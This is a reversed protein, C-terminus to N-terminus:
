REFVLLSFVERLAAPAEVTQELYAALRAAAEARVEGPLDRGVLEQWVQQGLAATPGAGLIDRESAKDKAGSPANPLKQLGQERESSEGSAEGTVPAWWARLRELPDGAGPSVNEPLPLRQAQAVWEGFEFLPAQEVAASGQQVLEALAQIPDGAPGPELWLTPLQAALEMARELRLLPDRAM